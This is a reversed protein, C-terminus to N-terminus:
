PSKSCSGHCWRVTSAFRRRDTMACKSEPARPSKGVLEQMAFRVTEAGPTKAPYDLMSQCLAVSQELSHVIHPAIRRVRPDESALVPDAVLTTSSLVNRIDHNIRAVAEGINALRERQRFTLLTNRQFTELARAAAVFKRSRLLEDAIPSAVSPDDSFANISDVLAQLPAVYHRHLFMRLASLGAFIVVTLMLLLGSFM